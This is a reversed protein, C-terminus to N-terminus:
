VRVISKAIVIKNGKANVKVNDCLSRIIMIGRGNESMELPDATECCPKRCRCADSFDYGGGEDEVIIFMIDHGSVGANVKVFKKEDERNGHRVANILIENLIVKLEFLTCDNVDGYCNQLSHILDKVVIGVNNITSPVCTSYIDLRKM